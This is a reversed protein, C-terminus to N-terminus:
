LRERCSDHQDEWAEQALGRMDTLDGGARKQAAFTGELNEEGRARDKGGRQGPKALDEVWGLGLTGGHL